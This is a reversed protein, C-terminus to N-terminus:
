FLEKQVFKTLVNIKSLKPIRIENLKGFQWTDPDFERVLLSFRDNTDESDPKMTLFDNSDSHIQVYFEKDDFLYFNDLTEQDDQLLDGFDDIKPHRLSFDETSEM